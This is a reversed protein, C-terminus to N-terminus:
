GRDPFCEIPPSFSLRGLEPGTITLLRNNREECLMAHFLGPLRSHFRSCRLFHFSRRRPPSTFIVASELHNKETMVEIEEFRKDNEIRYNIFYYDISGWFINPRAWQIYVSDHTPCTVNLILPASPGSIDTRRIIHDSPEGENKWTYAKVWIKYEIYPESLPVDMEHFVM